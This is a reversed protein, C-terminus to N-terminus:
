NQKFIPQDTLSKIMKLMNIRPKRSTYETILDEMASKHPNLKTLGNLKNETKGSGMNYIAKMNRIPEWDMHKEMRGTVKMYKVM